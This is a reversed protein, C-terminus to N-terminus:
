FIFSPKTILEIALSLRKQQGGSLQRFQTDRQEVLGVSQITEMVVRHIQEIPTGEPLRLKAAYYLTREVTLSDHLIDKQPVHGISRRLADFNRYLDMENIFVAGNTAPRLGNLADMLTSKGCGSPGMLGVFERPWLALSIDKIITKGDIVKSVGWASIRSVSLDVRRITRGEVRLLFGGFSVLDNPSLQRPGVLPEGNIFTGNTSGVDTIVPQPGNTYALSAHYRSVGPADLVVDNDPARGLRLVPKEAARVITMAVSQQSSATPARMGARQGPSIPAVPPRSINHQNVVIPRPGESGQGFAQPGAKHFSFAIAGGPGFAIVDGERLDRRTIQEGNVFTGNRSGLDIITAQQGAIEILAHRKSVIPQDLVIQCQSADRGIAVRESEIAFRQNALTGTRGLLFALPTTGRNDQQSM